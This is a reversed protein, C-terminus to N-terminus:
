RTNLITDIHGAVTATMIMNGIIIIIILIIMIIIIIIIILIIIIIYTASSVDHPRQTAFM